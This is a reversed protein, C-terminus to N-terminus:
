DDRRDRERSEKADAPEITPEASMRSTDPTLLVKWFCWLSWLIVGGVALILAVWGGTTM